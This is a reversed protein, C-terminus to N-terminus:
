TYSLPVPAEKRGNWSALHPEPYMLCLMTASSLPPHCRKVHQTHSKGNHAKAPGPSLLVSHGLISVSTPQWPDLHSPIPLPHLIFVLRGADLGAGSPSHKRPRTM